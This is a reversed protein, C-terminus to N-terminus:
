CLIAGIILGLIFAIIFINRVPHKKSWMKYFEIIKKINKIM